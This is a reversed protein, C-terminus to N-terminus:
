GHELAPQQGGIADCEVQGLANNVGLVQRTGAIGRRPGARTGPGEELAGGCVRRGAHSVRHKAGPHCIQTM